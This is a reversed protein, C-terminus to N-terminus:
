FIVFNKKLTENKTKVTFALDRIRIRTNRTLSPLRGKSRVFSGLMIIFLFLLFRLEFMSLARFSCNFFCELETIYLVTCYVGVLKLVVYRIFYFYSSCVNTM